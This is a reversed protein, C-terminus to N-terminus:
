DISQKFTHVFQFCKGSAKYFKEDSLVIEQSVKNFQLSHFRVRRVNFFIYQGIDNLQTSFCIAKKACNIKNKKLAEQHSFKFVDFPKIKIM